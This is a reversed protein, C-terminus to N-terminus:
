SQRLCLVHIKVYRLMDSHSFRLFIVASSPTALYTLTQIANPKCKNSLYGGFCSNRLVLPLNAIEPDSFGLISQLMLGIPRIASTKANSTNVFFKIM